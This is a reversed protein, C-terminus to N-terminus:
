AVRAETAGIAIRERRGPRSMRHGISAVAFHGGSHVKGRGTTALDVLALGVYSAPVRLSKALTRRRIRASPALTGSEIRRQIEQAVSGVSLCPVLTERLARLMERALDALLCAQPWTGWIGYTPPTLAVIWADWRARDTPSDSTARRTRALGLLPGASAYVLHYADEVAKASPNTRRGKVSRLRSIDQTLM